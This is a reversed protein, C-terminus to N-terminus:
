LQPKQRLKHVPAVAVTADLHPRAKLTGPKDAPPPVTQSPTSPTHAAEARAPSESFDGTPMGASPPLPPHLLITNRDTKLNRTATSYLRALYDAHIKKIGDRQRVGASFLPDVISAWPVRRQRLEIWIPLAAEFAAQLPVHPARAAFIAVAQDRLLPTDDPPLTSM